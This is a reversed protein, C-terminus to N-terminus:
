VVVAQRRSVCGIVDETSPLTSMSRTTNGATRRSSPLTISATRQRRSGDPATTAHAVDGMPACVSNGNRSSAFAPNMVWSNISVTPRARGAHSADMNASVAPM